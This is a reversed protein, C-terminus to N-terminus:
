KHCLHFNHAKFVPVLPIIHSALYEIYTLNHRIRPQHVTVLSFMCKRHERGMKPSNALSLEIMVSMMLIMM